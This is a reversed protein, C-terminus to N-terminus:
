IKLSCIRTKGREEGEPCGYRDEGALRFFFGKLGYKNKTEMRQSSFEFIKM